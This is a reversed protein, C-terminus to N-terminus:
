FHNQERKLSAELGSVKLNPLKALLESNSLTTNYYAFLLTIYFYNNM